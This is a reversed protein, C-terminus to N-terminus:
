PHEPFFDIKVLYQDYKVKLGLQVASSVYSEAHFGWISFPRRRGVLSPPFSADMPSAVRMTICKTLVAM